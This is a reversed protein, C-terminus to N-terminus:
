RLSQPEQTPQVGRVNCVTRDGLKQLKLNLKISYEEDIVETELDEIDAHNVIQADQHAGCKRRPDVTVKQVRNNIVRKRVEGVAKFGCQAPRYAIFLAETSAHQITNIVAGFIHHQVGNHLICRLTELPGRIRLAATFNIVSKKKKWLNWLSM